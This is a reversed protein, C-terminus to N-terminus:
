ATPPFEPAHDEASQVQNAIPVVVTGPSLAHLLLMSAVSVLFLDVAKLVSKM